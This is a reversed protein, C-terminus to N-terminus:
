KRINLELQRKELFGGYDFGPVDVNIGRKSMINWFKKELREKM